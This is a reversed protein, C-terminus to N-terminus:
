TASPSLVAPAAPPTRRSQPASRDTGRVLARVGELYTKKDPGGTLIRQLAYGPVMGFLVAGVAEVDADPPLEGAQRAQGALAVFHSRIREYKEAVFEALVPDRLSEAWVPLALRLMGDPGTQADVFELARDVADALPPGPERATLQAFVEEAQGIVTEAIAAVLENKSNFYRYFAGVSLGAEGIVDQMSTNHFGDRLFCRRAADLIQARRAALHEDSVRPM